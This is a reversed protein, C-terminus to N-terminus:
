HVNVEHVNVEIKVRFLHYGNNEIDRQAAVEDFAVRPKGSGEIQTFPVWTGSCATTPIVSTNSTATAAFLTQDASCSFIHITM